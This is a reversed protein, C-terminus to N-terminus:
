RTHFGPAMFLPLFGAGDTVPAISQEVARSFVSLITESIGATFIEALRKKKPHPYVLVPKESLNALKRLEETAVEIGGLVDVMGLKLAQEGTYIRGDALSKVKALPSRGSDDPM